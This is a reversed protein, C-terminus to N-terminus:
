EDREIIALVEDERCVRIGGHADTWDAGKNHRPVNIDLSYDQGAM